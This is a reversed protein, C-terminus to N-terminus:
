DCSYDLFHFEGCRCPYTIGKLYPFKSNIPIKLVDNKNDNWYIPYHNSLKMDDLFMKGSINSEVILSPINMDFKDVLCIINMSFLYNIKIFFSDGNYTYDSLYKNIFYQRYFDEYKIYIKKFEKIKEFDLYLFRSLLNRSGINIEKCPEHNKYIVNLSNIYIIRTANNKNLYLVEEDSLVPSYFYITYKKPVYKNYSIHQNVISHIEKGSKIEIVFDLSVIDIEFIISSRNRIKLNKYCVPYGKEMLERQVRKELYAM